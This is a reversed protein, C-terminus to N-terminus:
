GGSGRGGMAVDDVLAMGSQQRKAVSFHTKQRGKNGLM